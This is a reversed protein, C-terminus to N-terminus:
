EEDVFSVFIDASETVFANNISAPANFRTLWCGHYYTTETIGPAEATVGEVTPMHVEKRMSFPYKQEELSKMLKTPNDTSTKILRSIVSGNTQIDQKYIAFGTVALTFNAPKPVGQLIRGADESNLHRVPEVPRDQSENIEQIWGIESGDDGIITIVTTPYVKDSSSLSHNGARTNKNTVFGAM